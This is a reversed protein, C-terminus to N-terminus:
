HPFPAHDPLQVGEEYAEYYATAAFASSARLDEYDGGPVRPIQHQRDTFLTELAVIRNANRYPLQKLLMQEVVSFVATTAGIGLALTLIATVAFGPNRRLQRLAYRFDQALMM